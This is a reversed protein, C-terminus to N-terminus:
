FSYHILSFFLGCGVLKMNLGCLTKNVVRSPEFLFAFGPKVAHFAPSPNEIWASIYIVVHQPCGKGFNGVTKWNVNSSEPLAQLLHWHSFFIWLFCICLHIILNVFTCYATITFFTLALYRIDIELLFIDIFSCIIQLYESPFICFDLFAFHSFLSISFVFLQFINFDLFLLICFYRFIGIYLFRFLLFIFFTYRQFRLM